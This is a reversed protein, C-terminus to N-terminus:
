SPKQYQPKLREALVKYDVPESTNISISVREESPTLPEQSHSQAELVSWGAESADEGMKRRKEVREKLVELPAHFGLIMFRCGAQDALEMFQKRDNLRLFAADVIMSIGAGMATGAIALLANYTERSKAETYISHEKRIRSREKQSNSRELPGLGSLRKREIDSRVSVAGIISALAGSHTTKGSGSLGMTIILMPKSKKTLSEAFRLYSLHERLAREKEEPISTQTCRIATVKARVMARYLTYFRLLPLSAYDGTISLWRNLLRWALETAGSHLLDMFLFSIDSVIDICSLEHSFEICDFILIEGGKEVMNGTHMDGHCERIFGDRKRRTFLEKLRSHERITWEKLRTCYEGDGPDCSTTHDFNRLIPKLLNEPTGSGSEMPIPELEKHFRAIQTAIRDIHLPTLEKHALLRDLERTRDFRQMQVCYDVTEGNGGVRLAGERLVIPLV